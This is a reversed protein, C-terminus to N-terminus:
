LARGGQLMPDLSHPQQRPPAHADTGPNGYRAGRQKFRRGSFLVASDIGHLGCREKIQEVQELVSARDRGHIMTFLNYPWDPLRPPRRYSLTVFPFSGICRGLEGVRQEPLAWVVMANARYGLEHHRVVVGFRKITGTDMLRSLRAIVEPESIELAEAIVAYPRAVLPLGRQVDRVLAADIHDVTTASRKSRMDM